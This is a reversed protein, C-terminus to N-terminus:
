SGSPHHTKLSIVAHGHLAKMNLPTASLLQVYCNTSRHTTQNVTWRDHGNLAPLSHAAPAWAVVCTGGPLSPCSCLTRRRAHSWMRQQHMMLGQKGQQRLPLAMHPHTRSWSRASSHRSPAARTM